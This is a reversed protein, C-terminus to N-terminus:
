DRYLYPFLLYSLLAVIANLLTLLILDQYIDSIGKNLFLQQSIKVNLVFIPIAIPFGLITSLTIGNGSGSSMASMMSFIASLGISSLFVSSLFLLNQLLGFGFLVNFILTAILGMSFTFLSNYIIKGLIFAHLSVQTFMYKLLASQKNSFSKAVVNVSIFLFIIWYLASWMASNINGNTALFSIYVTSSLYLLLGIAAFQQRVELLLELKAVQWIQTGTKM